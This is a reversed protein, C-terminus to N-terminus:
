FDPENYANLDPNESSHLISEKVMRQELRATSRPYSAINMTQGVFSYGDVLADKEIAYPFAEGKITVLMGNNFFKNIYNRLGNKFIIKWSLYKDDVIDGNPKKYGKRFEDVFVLVADPLYKITNVFGTVQIDAM